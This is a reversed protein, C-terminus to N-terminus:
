YTRRSSTLRQKGARNCSLCANREEPYATRVKYFHKDTDTCAANAIQETLRALFRRANNEYVFKICDALATHIIKASVILAFLSQVLQENFHVTKVIFFTKDNKGSCVARVNKVRCKKTRSTKVPLNNYVARVYFTALCDKANM